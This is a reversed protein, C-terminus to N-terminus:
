FSREKRAAAEKGWQTNQLPAIYASRCRSVTLGLRISISALNVLKSTM